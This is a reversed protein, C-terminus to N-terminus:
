VASSEKGNGMIRKKVQQEAKILLYKDLVIYKSKQEFNLHILLLSM